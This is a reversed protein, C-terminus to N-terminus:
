RVERELFKAQKVPDIDHWCSRSTPKWEGTRGVKRVPLLKVQTRNANIFEVRQKRGRFLIIDRLRPRYLKANPADPSQPWRCSWHEPPKVGTRIRDHLRFRKHCKCCSQKLDKHKKSRIAWWGRTEAAM